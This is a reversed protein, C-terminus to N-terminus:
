PTSQGPRDLRQWCRLVFATVDFQTVFSPTDIIAQPEVECWVQPLAAIRESVFEGMARERWYHLRDHDATLNRNSTQAICVQIGDGWDTTKNTSDRVIREPVPVLFVGPFTAGTSWPLKKIVFAADAITHAAGSSTGFSAQLIAQVAETLTMWRSDAM